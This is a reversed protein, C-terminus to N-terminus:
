PQAEFALPRSLTGMDIVDLLDVGKLFHGLAVKGFEDTDIIPVVNVDLKSLQASFNSANGGRGVLHRWGLLNGGGRGAVSVMAGTVEELKGPFALLYDLYFDPMAVVKFRPKEALKEKLVSVLRSM